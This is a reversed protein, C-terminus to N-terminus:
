GDGNSTPRAFFDVARYDVIIYIMTSSIRSGVVLTLKWNGTVM